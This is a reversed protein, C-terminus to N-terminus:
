GLNIKSEEEVEEWRTILADVFGFPLEAGCNDCQFYTDFTEEESMYPDRRDVEVDGDYGRGLVPYEVSYGIEEVMRITNNSHQNLDIGCSPCIMDFVCDEYNRM